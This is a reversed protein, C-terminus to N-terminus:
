SDCFTSSGRLQRLGRAFLGGIKTRPAYKEDLLQRVLITCSHQLHYPQQKIGLAAQIDSLCSLKQLDSMTKWTREPFILGATTIPFVRSRTGM